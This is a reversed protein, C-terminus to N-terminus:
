LQKAPKSMSSRSVLQTVVSPKRTTPSRHPSILLEGNVLQDYISVLRDNLRDINYHAEVFRRGHSGMRVCLMPQEVLAQLKETLANVDREPVLFGSCGDEVVEPIGAHYTSVVPLSQAFAEMIVGPIGEESGNEPTLSPALLIDSKQLLEAIENQSKWGLLEVNGAVKLKRILSQLEGKLPGDGAIKYEVRQHKQVVEAVARIGYEVGKKETLRAVTLVRVGVDRNAVRPCFRYSQLDVGSRHVVIKQEQCGLRLLRGKIHECVCLFLDGRSFLDDYIHDGYLKVYSSIDYGRFSTVIEGGCVGTDRLLLGLQGLPGFQCHVIDYPGRDLFPVIQNLMQLFIAGRGFKSFKLSDLVARPNKHFNAILLGIRRAFRVPKSSCAYLNIYRTRELLQYKEVDAHVTSETSWNYAFIDVEHGRELLGTIQRLIFTESIAPFQHVIFAIKM